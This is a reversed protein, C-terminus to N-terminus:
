RYVVRGPFGRVRVLPAKKLFGELLEDLYGLFLAFVPSASRPGGLHPATHERWVPKEQLPQWVTVHWFTSTSARPRISAAGM